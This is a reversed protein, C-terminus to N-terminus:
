APSSASSAAAGAASPGSCTPTTTARRRHAATRRRHGGDPGGRQRLHPRAAPQGPRARRGPRPRAIGVNPCSGAPITCGAAALKLLRRRAPRRRRRRGHREGPPPHGRPHRAPRAARRQRHDLLRRVLPRGLARRAPHRHQGVLARGRARRRRQGGARRRAPAPRRLARQLGPACRRLRVAGRTLVPGRMANALQQLRADGGRRIRAAVPPASLALAAVGAQALFSRRDMLRFAVAAAPHARAGARPGVARPRRARGGGARDRRARRGDPVLVRGRPVVIFLGDIDGMAAFSRRDGSYRPIGLRELADVAAGVDLPRCASRASRTSARRARVPLPRRPRPRPARHARARQRGPRPLVDRPRELLPFPVVPSGEHRLVEVRRELWAIGDDLRDPAITFAVHHVRPRPGPVARFALRTAGARVAFAREDALLPLGLRGAYFARLAAARADDADRLPLARRWPYPSTAWRVPTASGSRRPTGAACGTIFQSGAGRRVFHASTFPAFRSSAAPSLAAGRCNHPASRDYVSSPYCNLSRRPSRWPWRLAADRVRVYVPLSPRPAVWQWGELGRNSRACVSSRSVGASAIRGAWTSALM